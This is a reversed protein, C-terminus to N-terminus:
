VEGVVGIIDKESELAKRKKSKELRTAFFWISLTILTLPAAIAVFVWVDKAFVITSTSTQFTLLNM